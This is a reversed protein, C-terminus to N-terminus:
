FFGGPGPHGGKVECFTEGVHSHHGDREDHILTESQRVGIDREVRRPEVQRPDDFGQPAREDVDDLGLAPPNDGHLQEYAGGETAHGEGDGGGVPQLSGQGTEPQHGERTGGVVDGGVAEVHEAELLVLLCPKHADAGREVADGGDHTLSQEHHECAVKFNDGAVDAIRPADREVAHCAKEDGEPEPVM